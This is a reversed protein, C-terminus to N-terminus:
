IVGRSIGVGYTIRCRIAPKPPTLLSPQMASDHNAFRRILPPLLAIARRLATAIVNLPSCSCVNSRRTRACKVGRFSASRARIIKSVLRPAPTRSVARRIPTHGFVTLCQRPRQNDDRASAVTASRKASPGRGPAGALKVDSCIQAITANAHSAGSALPMGTVCQLWLSSARSATLRPMTALM